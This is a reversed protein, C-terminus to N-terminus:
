ATRTHARVVAPRAGHPRAHATGFSLGPRGAAGVAATALRALRRTEQLAGDFPPVAM